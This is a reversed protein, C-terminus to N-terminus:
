GGFFGDNITEAIARNYQNAPGLVPATKLLKYIGRERDGAIAEATGEVARSVNSLAAAEGAITQFFGDVVSHSQQEYIPFALNLLREGSGLLGSAGVARQLKEIDDLYPTAQGYKILDKLYQSAFGLAIMTAMTAFANYKMAPTGRAVLEGWMKPIHNATFTSIFGQFQTFLALHPNQYFLPRNASQPLAVAENIFNFTGERLNQSMVAEEEPTLPGPKDYLAVMDDVNIGIARLQEEAEQVENTYRDGNIRQTSIIDLKDNIFDGAISGRVNRTYDTWQQLQIAKFYIDLLRHQSHKVETVGTTHAAGVDWNFYGLNKLTSQRLEKNRQVVEPKNFYDLKGWMAQAGEKSANKIVNFVQDKTLARTTLALEVFSSITALPLGAFTTWLMLNRQITQYRENKIRKYNGSEADLYDQLQAAVKNAEQESVGEEIMQQVLENIKKSDDGIYEQYTIYRAASKSANSLNEFFNQEMFEQFDPDDSLNLTRAKHSGPVQKGYGVHFDDVSSIIDRDIISNVIQRADDHNINHKDILLQVFKSKNKEIASKNFSKHHFLYNKVYGLNPNHKRQDNWLKDGLQIVENYYETVWARHEAPITNFDIARGDKEAAKVEEGFKNVIDSIQNLGTNLVRKGRKLNAKIALQLPDTVFNKYETLLHHKRNEFTSGSFTRQLNGGFMDALIRAARSKSQLEDTFIYRTAGRWLSPIAALADKSVEVVDRGSKSQKFAQIRDQWHTIDQQRATAKAETEDNLEQISKVRGHKDAEEKAFRGARSIRAQEAPAQRVAVDAWAGVDYATGPVAFGAGLTGGAIAANILRDQLEVANFEKDSGEVAAIYATLEQLTETGAESVLGTGANKALGKLVNRAAIQKGAEKAADGALAAIEKRTQTALIDSAIKRTVGDRAVIASIAKDRTAKNLISGGVIAQLGLKDLVAQTVGAAVAVAANKEGEMENWTQGTYVSVPALYSLGGTFPAALAGGITVAMYPLSVAANNTLFQFADGWSKIDWNGQEDLASLKLEPMESINAHARQIGAEGIDKAADWGTTEGVLNILGWLGEQVGKFGLNFSDSIPNIAKNDLTRDHSRFQVSGPSFVGQHQRKRKEFDEDSEGRQQKVQSLDAEIIAQQKIGADYFTEDAIAKDIVDRAKDWDTDSKHQKRSRLIDGIEASLIDKDNTYRNSDLLGAGLVTNAFDRGDNDQLRILPRGFPDIEDTKIVNTFGKERALKMLQETTIGAGATGQLGPIGNEDLKAIEPADIGQIRFRNNEKDRLTDADVFSYEDNLQHAEPKFFSDFDGM